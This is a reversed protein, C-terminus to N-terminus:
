HASGSPTGTDAKHFLIKTASPYKTGLRSEPKVNCGQGPTGPRLPVAGLLPGLTGSDRVAM